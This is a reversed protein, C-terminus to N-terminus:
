AASTRGLLYDLSYQGAGKWALAFYPILYLIAMEKKALPDAGHVILVAVLMTVVLPIAAWRTFLGFVLLGACIVESFVALGLTAEMGIGLPDGFKIPADAFFKGMKGWGHNVLMLGGFTIRLLLLIVDTSQGYKNPFFITSKSMM